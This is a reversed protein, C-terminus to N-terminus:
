DDLRLASVFAEQPVEVRGINKMRKKGEKQKELLKRKRTIDGGYCKALVDKRKAKVTERAVIRGGIAAQIPVDFMQRPILERLKETMRRGYDYAKQRHIITSFADVPVGNLMVDLKVLDSREYGAPEYDLSAYGKTRSKLADFFDMVVEALPIRYQLEVREPSLYEMRGMEGRRQQCLEMLTGTYTSPSLITIQLMPEEILEIEGGPPMAAPNDVEIIEGGRIHARYAVSPATAILSLNFERELRERVIEMHLLGLFGCRFGFGLAGSTEPEYTFSADNLRLKELAERLDEFEDGDIPFLGCFVMPKPEQYGELAAPAPRAADTVTEGSRAEGVNKIGAILYGVEGTGLEAVPTNDPTRMGIEEIEHLQGTQMFKLRGGSRMRGNLVRVASVVGRYQDYYSDFVLAQLPADPDGTPPPVRAIVADLLDAVGEGTKASIPLIEEAPIGLVQQIEAAYREPDAAPLDIKNLAAVITLDHELALFCNALTQAEIGQSADVLLIVGDCAALSRSVEYGFDVHGPTDILFIEHGKYQLRVNQAKITIGREREIDMTDLYQAKMNRPDVAGCIELLRDALTSKGHDVHAVIAVARIHDLSEASL